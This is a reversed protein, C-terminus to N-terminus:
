FPLRIYVQSSALHPPHVASVASGRRQPSVDSRTVERVHRLNQARHQRGQSVFLPFPPVLVRAALSVGHDCRRVLTDAGAEVLLRCVDLHGESACYM